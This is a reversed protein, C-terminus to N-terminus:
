ISELTEAQLHGITRSRAIEGSKQFRFATMSRWGIVLRGITSLTAWSSPELGRSASRDM